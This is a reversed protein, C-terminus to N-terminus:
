FRFSQTIGADLAYTRGDLLGRRQRVVDVQAAFHRSLRVRAGVTARRFYASFEGADYDLREVRAVATVPGMAIRHIMADLYGGRTSVGDFPRGTIWEGRLQVGAYMWRGDLGAFRMRGFIYPGAMSPTTRIASAGIILGRAYAQTRVVVDLGRARRDAGVDQPLGISTEVSLSPKGVLVDVGGEMFTNGLAWNQGYRVLPARLFGNYAHDSRGSIGFPTRYRGTKVALMTDGAKFLREAYAEMPYVHGDYAYAGGFADTHRASVRGWATEMFVRWGAGIPGFVRLQAAAGTTPESSLGVTLDTEVALAHEAPSQAEAPTTTASAVLLVVAALASRNM